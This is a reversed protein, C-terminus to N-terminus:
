SINPHVTSTAMTAATTAPGTSRDADGIVCVASCPSSSTALITGLMWRTAVWWLRHANLNHRYGVKNGATPGAFPRQREAVRM